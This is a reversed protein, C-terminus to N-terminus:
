NWLSEFQQLTMGLYSNIYYKDKQTLIRLKAKAILKDM